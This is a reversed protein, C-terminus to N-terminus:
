PKQRIPRGVQKIERKVDRLPKVGAPQQGNVQRGGNVMRNKDANARETEFKQRLDRFRVLQEPTLIRRVGFENMFRIKAVEAQALQAEKLRAQVDTENAKDSYIAEDLLRNAERLRTQAAEMLPKREVNLRRIMQIQDRSLGLQGLVVTRMDKPKQVEPPPTETQKSDQGFATVGFAGAAFVILVLNVYINKRMVMVPLNYRRVARM